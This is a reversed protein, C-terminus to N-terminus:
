SAVFNRDCEHGCKSHAGSWWVSIDWWVERGAARGQFSEGFGVNFMQDRFSNIRMYTYISDSRAYASRARAFGNVAHEGNISGSLIYTTGLYLAYIYVCIYVHQTDSGLRLRPM